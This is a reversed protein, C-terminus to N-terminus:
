LETRAAARREAILDDIVGQGKLHAFQQKLRKKITEAREFILRGEDDIQAVLRDGLNLGMQHRLEAPIVPQGSDGVRVEIALNAM